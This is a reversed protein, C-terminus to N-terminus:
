SSVRCRFLSRKMSTRVVEHVMRQALGSLSSVKGFHLIKRYDEGNKIYYTEWIFQGNKADRVWFFFGLCVHKGVKTAKTVEGGIVADVNLEQGIKKIIKVPVSNIIQYRERKIIRIIEGEETVEVGSQILESIVVKTILESIGQRNTHNIFPIVAVRCINNKINKAIHLKPNGYSCSILLSITTGYLIIRKLKLMIIKLLRNGM